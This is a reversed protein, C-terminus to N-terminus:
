EEERFSAIARDRWERFDNWQSPSNAGLDVFSGDADSVVSWHQPSCMRSLLALPNGEGRIEAHLYNIPEQEFGYLEISFDEGDFAAKLRPTSMMARIDPSFAGLIEPPLNSTQGWELEPLATKIIQVVQSHSGLPKPDPRGDARFNAPPRGKYDVITVEWPM